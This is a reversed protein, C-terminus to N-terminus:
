EMHQALDRHPGLVCFAMGLSELLSLCYIFREMKSNKKFVFFVLGDFHSMATDGVTYYASLRNVVAMM